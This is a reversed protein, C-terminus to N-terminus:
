KGVRDVTFVGMGEGGGVEGIYVSASGRRLLCSGSVGVVVGVGERREGKPPGLGLIDPYSDYCFLARPYSRVLNCPFDLVSQTSIFLFVFASYFLNSLKEEFTKM